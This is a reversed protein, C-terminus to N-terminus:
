EKPTEDASEKRERLEKRTYANRTIVVATDPDYIPVNEHAKVTQQFAKIFDIFPKIIETGENIPAYLPIALGSKNVKKDNFITREEEIVVFRVGDRVTAYFNLNANHLKRISTIYQKSDWYRIEVKKNGDEDVFVRAM